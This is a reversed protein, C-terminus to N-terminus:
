LRMQKMQFRVTNTECLMWSPTMRLNNRERKLDKSPVLWDKLTDSNINLYDRNWEFDDLSCSHFSENPVKDNEEDPWWQRQSALYTTKIIEDKASILELDRFANLKNGLLQRVIRQTYMTVIQVKRPTCTAPIVLNEIHVFQHINCRLNRKKLSVKTSMSISTRCVKSFGVQLM